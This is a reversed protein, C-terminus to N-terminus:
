FEVAAMSANLSDPGCAHSPTLPRGPTDPVTINSPEAPPHFGMLVTM